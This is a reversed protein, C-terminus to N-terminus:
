KGYYASPKKNKNIDKEIFLFLKISADNVEKFKKQLEPIYKKYDKKKAVSKWKNASKLWEAGLKKVTTVHNDVIKDDVIWPINTWQDDKSAREWKPSWMYPNPDGLFDIIESEWFTKIKKIIQDINKIRQAPALKQYSEPEISLKGGHRDDDTWWDETMKRFKGETLIDKLKIM